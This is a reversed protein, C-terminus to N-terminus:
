KYDSPKCCLRQMLAVLDNARIEGDLNIDLGKSNILLKVKSSGEEVAVLKTNEGTRVNRVGNLAAIEEKSVTIYGDKSNMIRQQMEDSQLLFARYLKIEKNNKYRDYCYYDMDIDGNTENCEPELQYTEKNQFPHAAMRWENYWEHDKNGFDYDYFAFHPFVHIEDNYQPASEIKGEEDIVIRFKFPDKLLTGKEITENSFLFFAYLDNKRDTTTDIYYWKGGIKVADWAHNGDYGLKYNGKPFPTDPNDNLLKEKESSSIKKYETSTVVEAEVGACELLFAYMEADFQCKTITHCNFVSDFTTNVTKDYIYNNVIYDHLTLAIDYEDKASLTGKVKECEKGYYKIGLKKLLYKAKDYSYNLSFPTSEFVSYNDKIIKPCTDKASNCSVISGDIYVNEIFRNCYNLFAIQKFIVDYTNIKSSLMVDTINVNEEAEIAYDCVNKVNALAAKSLDLTHSGKRPKAKVLWDGFVIVEPCNAKYFVGIAISKIRKSNCSVHNVTACICVGYGVEELNNSLQLVDIKSQQFVREGLTKVTNPVYVKSFIQGAGFWDELSTVTYYTRDIKIRSPIGLEGGGEKVSVLGVETESKIKYQYTRGNCTVEGDYNEEAAVTVVDEVKTTPVMVTLALTACLIGACVKKLKKKM